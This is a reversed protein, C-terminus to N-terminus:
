SSTSRRRRSIAPTRALIFLAAIGPITYFISAAGLVPAQLWRFRRLLVALPLSLLFGYTVARVTLGIHQTLATTILDLNEHVWSWDFLQQGAPLALDRM